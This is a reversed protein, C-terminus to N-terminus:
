AASVRDVLEGHAFARVFELHKGRVLDSPATGAQRHQTDLVIGGVAYSRAVLQSCFFARHDRAGSRAHRFLHFTAWDLVFRWVAVMNYPRGVWRRGERVAREAVFPPIYDMRLRWLEVAGDYGTVEESAYLEQVGAGVAQVIKVRDAERFAIAAHSYVGGTGIEIIRSSLAEGRFMFVDADRIEDRAGAYSGVEVSRGGKSRVGSVRDGVSM